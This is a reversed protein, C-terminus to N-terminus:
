YDQRQNRAAILELIRRRREGEPGENARLTDDLEKREQAFSPALLLAAAIGIAGGLVAGVLVLPLPQELVALAATTTAGLLLPPLLVHQGLCVQVGRRARFAGHQDHQFCGSAPL